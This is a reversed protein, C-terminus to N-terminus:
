ADLAPSDRRVSRRMEAERRLPYYSVCVFVSMLLLLMYM